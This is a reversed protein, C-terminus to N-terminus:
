SSVPLNELAAGAYLIKETVLCNFDNIIEYQTMSDHKTQNLRCLKSKDSPAMRRTDMFPKYGLENLALMRLRQLTEIEM